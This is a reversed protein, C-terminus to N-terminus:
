EYSRFRVFEFVSNKSGDPQSTVVRKTTSAVCPIGIEKMRNVFSFTFTMEGMVHVTVDHENALASFDETYKDVLAMLAPFEDNPDIAPFPMDTVKGYTAAAGRQAESWQNYPHNSFNVLVKEKASDPLSVSFISDDIGDICKKINKVIGSYEMPQRKSRMGSHNIDNRVTTLNDFDNALQNTMMCDEILKRIMMKDGRWKDEAINWAKINIAGNVVERADEDDIRIGHQNCFFSVIAEQLFTASQQYMGKEYCWRAAVIANRINPQVDFDNLSAKIKDFIPNFASIFTTNLITATSIVRKLNSANIVAMGRCTQFDSMVKDLAESFTRLQRAAEDQGRTNKLIQAYSSQCLSVLRKVHGSELFQGAAFTWDQLQSLPLLDVIPAQNQANRSEYNGYTIGKVTAQKLFKSYNGLVLILMPLYRFGHTLDFYLEDGDELRNFVQNFITWIEQENNGMPLRSIAEIRPFRVKGTEQELDLLSNQLGKIGKIPKSTVRDLQGEDVWNMKEAQETLLFYAVDHDHSWTGSSTLMRLTSVQIFRTTGYSLGDKIYECAGYNTAGLVSVFVKRAM